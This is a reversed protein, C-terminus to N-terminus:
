KWLFLEYLKGNFNEVEHPQTFVYFDDGFGHREQFKRFNENQLRVYSDLSFPRKSFDLKQCSWSGLGILKEKIWGDDEFQFADYAYVACKQMHVRHRGNSLSEVYGGALARFTFGGM